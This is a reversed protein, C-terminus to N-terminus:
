ISKQGLMFQQLSESSKPSLKTLCDALEEDTPVWKLQHLIGDNILSRLYAIDVRLRKDKQVKTSFVNQVLFLNDTYTRINVNEGTLESIIKQCLFAADVANVCFITEGCLTSRVVRRLKQSKWSLLAPRKDSAQLFVLYGSQTGGCPLNGLSSDTFVNLKWEDASGLNEFMLYSDSASYRLKRVIKNVALFHSRQWDKSSGLLQCVQFSVDPRVQSAVWQLKGLIARMDRRAFKNVVFDHKPVIIERLEEVYSSLDLKIGRETLSLDFGLYRFPATETSRIDFVVDLSKMVSYEFQETGAWLFDDVQTTLLGVIEGAQNKKYFLCPDFESVCCGTALVEDEVKDYWHRAADVLGYVCKRLKWLKGSLGVEPPPMVYVDRTLPKGQLFATRIDMSNCKWAKSACLSVVIRFTDKSCTPSDKIVNHLDPDEFGRVVLRAKKRDPKQTLVWKCSLYEQGEDIVKEFVENKKWSKMEDMKAEFYVDATANLASVEVDELKSVDVCDLNGKIEKPSEYVINWWDKHVGTSKGGRSKVIAEIEEGEFGSQRSVFRIRRGAAPKLCERSVDESITEAVDNPVCNVATDGPVDIRLGKEIGPEITATNKGEDDTEDVVVQRDADTSGSDGFVEKKEEFGAEAESMQQFQDACRKLRSTHVKVVRGGHRVFVVSSEQGIVKAPGRWKPEGDRKYFVSNGTVFPGKDTVVKAKLARRIRNSCDAEIFLKRSKHLANLNQAVVECTTECELAPLKNTLVSPVHPGFGFAVQFPSFGDNNALSNKAFVAHQLVIDKSLSVSEDALLKELMDTLVANHREVVGNSWPSFAATTKVIIDNNQAFSQFDANDFEGGNDTLVAKPYGYVLCWCRLFGEIITSPRKNTIFVAASARSFLDIVHLYWLTHGSQAMEHLDMAVTNNWEMSIPYSVSPKPTARGFRQCVECDRVVEAVTCNVVKAGSKAILKELRTSGCHAFQRHLKMVQQSNLNGSSLCCFEENGFSIDLLLHGTKSCQLQIKGGDSTSLMSTHFDISFRAKTMSAVSILLPLQGPIVLVGLFCTVNGIKVPIFCKHEVKIREGGGFVVHTDVKEREVLAQLYDPLQSIYNEMWVQGSVTATCASDLVAKGFAENLLAATLMAFNLFVTEDVKEDEETEAQSAFVQKEKDPCERVWHFRSGCNTCVSIKGTSRDVPNSGATNRRGSSGGRFSGRVGRGRRPGGRNQWGGPQFGGTAAFVPEDKVVPACSNRQSVETSFIRKLSKKMNVFQIDGTASLVLKKDRDDLGACHLLKCALIGDPLELGHKVLRQNASEFATIYDNIPMSNRQITEFKEYDSFLQDATDKGFSLKLQALVKTLGDNAKLEDLPISMAIERKSSGLSLAVCPGKNGDALDTIANWVDVETKWAEFSMEDKWQPPTKYSTNAM